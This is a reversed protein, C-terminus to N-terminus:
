CAEGYHIPLRRLAIEARLRRWARRVPPVPWLFKWAMLIAGKWTPRLLHEDEVPYYYGCAVHHDLIREELRRMYADPDDVDPRRRVDDGVRAQHVAYLRAADDIGPFAMPRMGDRLPPTVALFDSNSTTLETGDALESAFVLFSVRTSSSVSVIVKAVDG